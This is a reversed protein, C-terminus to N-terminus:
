RMYKRLENSILEYGKDNLHLGDKVYQESIEEGDSEKLIPYMDIYIMDHEHCYEELLKNIEKRKDNRDNEAWTGRCPYLSEVYITTDPLEERINEIIEIIDEYIDDTGRDFNIDNTSIQLFIDTPHYRYVREYMQELIDTTKDGGHGSNIVRYDPFYKFIDYQETLSDGLFLYVPEYKNLNEQYTSIQENYNSIKERYNINTRLLVFIAIILVVVIVIACVMFVKKFKELEKIQKQLSEIKKKLKQVSDEKSVKKKM